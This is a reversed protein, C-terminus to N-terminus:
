SFVSVWAKWLSACIYYEPLSISVWGSLKGLMAGKTYYELVAASLDYINRYM